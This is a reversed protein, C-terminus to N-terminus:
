FQLHSPLFRSKPETQNVESRAETEVTGIAEEHEELTENTPSLSLSLWHKPQLRLEKRIIKFAFSMSELTFILIHRFTHWFYGNYTVMILFNKPKYKGPKESRKSITSSSYTKSAVKGSMAGSIFILFYRFTHRFYGTYLVMM